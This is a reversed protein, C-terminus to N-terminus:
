DDLAYAKIYDGKGRNFMHHGGAAIVVYQKGEHMYSMPTAMADTPLATKWLTKGTASDFARFTKDTTAGIFFVGSKLMVGGGLNPTGWNVHFPLTVPALDHISGFPVQWQWKGTRLDLAALKGWPPPSCPVGWPSMLMGVEMDYPTGQMQMRWNYGEMAVSGKELAGQRKILRVRSPTTSYNVILRQRVPDIAAGGWNAGGLSGPLMLTWKESLPTFLGEHHTNELLKRCKGKDWPTIGWADEPLLRDPLLREPKLAFPQTPSLNEEPLGNQPVPREEVPWVPEGTERHLVFVFGQKTMQIVVPVTQQNHQIDTLIPQAPMDYDWLDHHVGQFSWLVEGTSGRLAIVSNAYGNDGPRQAGYYDPSPSSSPLFVMDRAVDVSIPAWVNAAGSVQQPKAPWQQPDTSNEPLLSFTWRPKGTQIDYARVNGVPAVAKAFDIVGSGVIVAQNIVVPPSPHSVEGRDFDGEHMDIQGHDGFDDCLQGTKADLAILRRDHSALFVRHECLGQDNAQAKTYSLGRCNFPRLTSIAIKPDYLWRRAGTGPDLAVVRSMQTCVLLAGGAEDPVKIPTSQFSLKDHLAAPLLDLEGTQATWAEAMNASNQPTIQGIDVYHMAGPGGYSTWALVQSCCMATILVTLYEIKVKM